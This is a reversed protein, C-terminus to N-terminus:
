RDQEPGHPGRDDVYTGAEMAGFLVHVCAGIHALHSRGSDPDNDEGNLWAGIHRRIAGGYVTGNVMGGARFNKTRYKESGHKLVWAIECDAPFELLELPPKGDREAALQKINIEGSM